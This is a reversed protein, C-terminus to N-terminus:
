LESQNVSQSLRIRRTKVGQSLNESSLARSSSYVERADRKWGQIIKEAPTQMQRKLIVVLSESSRILFIKKKTMSLPHHIKIISQFFIKYM